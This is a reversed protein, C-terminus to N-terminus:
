QTEFFARQVMARLAREPDGYIELVDYIDDEEIVDILGHQELISPVQYEDFLGVFVMVLDVELEKGLETFRTTFMDGPVHEQLGLDEFKRNIADCAERDALWSREGFLRTVLDAANGEAEVQAAAVLVVAPQDFAAVVRNRRGDEFAYLRM